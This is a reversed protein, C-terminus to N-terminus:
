QQQRGRTEHSISVPLSQPGTEESSLGEAGLISIGRTRITQKREVGGRKIDADGKGLKSKKRRSPSNQEVMRTEGAGGGRVVRRTRGRGMWVKNVFLLQRGKFKRGEGEVRVRM